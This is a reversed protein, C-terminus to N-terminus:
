SDRAGAATREPSATGLHRCTECRRNRRCRRRWCAIGDSRDLWIRELHDSRVSGKLVLLDGPALERTLYRALEEVHEFTLVREPGHKEKLPAVSGTWRGVHIAVDAVELAREIVKRYRAGTKGAFDSLTGIVVIKRKARANAVFDLTAPVSYLPAKWADDVITVDDPFEHPCMRGVVPEVREIASVIEDTPVGERIGVAFAALVPFVATESLFRTRVGVVEGGVDLELALREPWAARAAVLRVTAEPSTGCGIVGARTRERMPWVHEDDTNLIALGDEPLAEVLRGKEAATAALSRYSTWHDPRVHTVIGIQPRLRALPYDLAGPFSGSLEAVVYGGLRPGRLVMRAQSRPTSYRHTLAGDHVPGRTALVASVLRTTLTKGCSGTVGVYTVGRFLYRHLAALTLLPQVKRSTV